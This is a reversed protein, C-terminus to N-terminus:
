WGYPHRRWYPGPGWYRPGPGVYVVPGPPPAYYRPAPTYVVTPPASTAYPVAVTGSSQMAQIVRDSVGSQKLQIISQPDGSFRCGHTRLSGVIVEDSVGNQTMAVVDGSTLARANASAQAQAYQAHAVAADREERADAANGALGGTVAGAAAGILAGGGAHGSQGGILAGATAGLGTGVLAGAETHGFQRCGGIAVLFLGALCCPGSRLVGTQMAM